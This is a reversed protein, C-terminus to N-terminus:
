QSLQSLSRLSALGYYDGHSGCKQFTPETQIDCYLDMPYYRPKGNDFIIIEGHLAYDQKRAEWAEHIKDEVKILIWQKIYPQHPLLSGLIMIKKIPPFAFEGNADTKTEDRGQQNGWSWDYTRELTAGAVPKGGSVVQGKVESFVYVTFMSKIGTIQILVLVVFALWIFALGIAVKYKKSFKM